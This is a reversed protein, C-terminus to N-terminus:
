PSSGIPKTDRRRAYREVEPRQVRFESPPAANSALKTRIGDHEWAVVRSQDRPDKANRTRCQDQKSPQACRPSWARLPSTLLSRPLRPELGLLSHRHQPQYRRRLIRFRRVRGLCRPAQNLRLDPQPLQLSRRAHHPPCRQCYRRRRQLRGRNWYCHPFRRRCPLPQQFRPFRLIQRNSQRHHRWPHLATNHRSRAVRCMRVWPRAICGSRTGAVM